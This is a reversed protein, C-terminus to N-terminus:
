DPCRPIPRRHGRSAASGARCRGTTSDQRPLGIGSRAAWKMAAPASRRDSRRRHAEVRATGFENVMAEVAAQPVRQALGRWGAHAAAVAGTRTDAISCRCVTPPRFPSRSRLVNPSSSTPTSPNVSRRDRVIRRSRVAGHVQRARLLRSRDAGLARAIGNWGGRRGRRGVHRAAVAPQYLRPACLARAAPLRAGGTRLRGDM